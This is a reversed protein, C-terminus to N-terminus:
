LERKVKEKTLSLCFITLNAAYLFNRCPTTKLILTQTQLCGGHQLFYFHFM